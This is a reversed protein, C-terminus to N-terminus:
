QGVMVTLLADELQEDRSQWVAGASRDFDREGGAELFMRTALGRHEGGAM